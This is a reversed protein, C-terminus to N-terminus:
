SSTINRYTGMVSANRFVYWGDSEVTGVPSWVTNLSQYYKVDPSILLTPVEKINYKTVLGQGETSNVDYRTINVTTVGFRQLIQLHQNVDYCNTCASDNLLVASVLGVVKNQALDLYPPNIAHFAFSGNRETANLSSIVQHVQPYSNVDNSYIVAPIRQVNYDAIDKQGESSSYDLTTTNAVKMGQQEFLATVSSINFCVTCSPDVLYTVSVLGVEKSSTADIYPPNAELVVADQLMRGNMSGWLSVINDKKFEGTVIVAPIKTISYKMILAKADLSSFELTQLNDVKINQNSTIPDSLSGITTCTFCNADVIRTLTLSAPRTSEKISYITQATILVEGTLVAALAILVVSKLTIKRVKKSKIRPV